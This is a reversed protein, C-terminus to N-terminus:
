PRGKTYLRKQQWGRKARSYKSFECLTHEVDRMEWKPWGPYWNDPDQSEKLLMQMRPIPNSQGGWLEEIGRLCGPGPNAWTMIDEAGQLLYTHRLDTVMEYAMFPGITPYVTLIETADKLTNRKAMADAIQEKRDWIRTAVHAISAAKTMGNIGRIMYAGTVLQGRDQILGLVSRGLHEDWHEFLGEKMLEVATEIRTHLRFLCCAFVAAAPNRKVRDRIAERFWVTVKDDERFINTFYYTQLVKDATWPPPLGAKKRLFIKYREQAYDWFPDIDIKEASM